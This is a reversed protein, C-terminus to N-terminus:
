PRDSDTGRTKCPSLRLKCAITSQMGYPLQGNDSLEDTYATLYCLIELPLNGLPKKAKKMLKRPNSQAFSVGLSEGVIKFINKRKPAEFTEDHTAEMAYTDLHEILEKLDEHYAYPEFRLKHKLSVAFAILLNLATRLNTLCTRALLFGACIKCNRWCM